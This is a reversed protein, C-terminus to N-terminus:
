FVRSPASRGIPSKKQNGFPFKNLVASHGTAPTIEVVQIDSDYEIKTLSLGNTVRKFLHEAKELVSETFYIPREARTALLALGEATHEKVQRARKEINFGHRRSFPTIEFELPSSKKANTIRWEIESSGDDALAEEVGRMIAIYDGVQALLDEVTPADTEADRGCISFHIPSSM